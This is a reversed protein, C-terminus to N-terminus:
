LLLIVLWHRGGLLYSDQSGHGARGTGKSKAKAWAVHGRHKEKGAIVAHPM